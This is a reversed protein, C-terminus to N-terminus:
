NSDTTEELLASRKTANEATFRDDKRRPFLFKVNREVTLVLQRICRGIAAAFDAEM